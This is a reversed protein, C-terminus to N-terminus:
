VYCGCKVVMVVKGATKEYTISVRYGDRTQIFAMLARSQAALPVSAVPDPVRFLDNAGGVLIYLKDPSLGSSQNGIYTGVMFSISGPSGDDTRAGAVALANGNDSLSDGFIVLDRIPRAAVPLSAWGLSTLAM